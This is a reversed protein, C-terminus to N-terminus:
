TSCPRIRTMVPCMCLAAKTCSLVSLHRSFVRRLSSPQAATRPLARSQSTLLTIITVLPAGYNFLLLFTWYLVGPKFFALNYRDISSPIESWYLLHSSNTSGFISFVFPIGLITLVVGTYIRKDPEILSIVRLLMFAPTFSAGIVSLNQYLIKASLQTSSYGLGAILSWLAITAFLALIYNRTRSRPRISVFIFGASSMVGTVMMYKVFSTIFFYKGNSIKGSYILTFDNYSLDIGFCGRTLSWRGCQTRGDRKPLIIKVFSTQIDTEM